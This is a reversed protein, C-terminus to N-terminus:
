GAFLPLDEPPVPTWSSPPIAALLARSLLDAMSYGPEAQQCREVACWALAGDGSLWAAFGLLAAPAAVLDRPTRRVLDRWLDVHVPANDRTIESWAVDRVQIHAMAVAMRGAEEADLPEPVDLYRRVRDRVWYAEAVLHKRAGDTAEGGSSRRAASRFRRMAEDASEAVADLVDLDTGVLSDVLETRSSLTVQGDLVYQATIPHSTLDYRRGQPPCCDDDCRLNYWRGGDARIASLLGVGSGSLADDLLDVAEDALVPEDTYAVLAVSRGGNRLVAGLLNAVAARTQSEDHTLDVRAHLNAGEGAVVVLVLSDQPHFGLVCPVLALLDDPSKIRLTPPTM